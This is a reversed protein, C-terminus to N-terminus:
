TRGMFAARGSCPDYFLAFNLTSGSIHYTYSGSVAQGAANNICADSGGSDTLMILNGSRTISGWVVADGDHNFAGSYTNDSQFTLNYDWSVWTGILPNQSNGSSIVSGYGLPNQLNANSGSSIGGGNGCALLAVMFSSCLAM